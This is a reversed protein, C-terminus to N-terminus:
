GTIMVQDMMNWKDDLVAETVEGEAVTIVAEHNTIVQAVVQGTRDGYGAHRSQFEFVFQWCSECELAKVEKYVLDFGDFKYTPSNEIFNIASQKSEGETGINEEEPPLAGTCRWNIEATKTIENVVCAPNCGEKESDIDFWWTNTNINHVYTEKLNGEEMCSSELAIKEAEEYTLSEAKIEEAFIEGNARCQRPYSEMVPNGAQVCDEFSDIRFQEKFEECYEEWMRQCKETSPCWQYGAAILCGHEDKEGGITREKECGAVVVLILLLIFIIKKIM